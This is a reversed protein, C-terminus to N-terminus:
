TLVILKRILFFSFFLIQWIEFSIILGPELAVYKNLCFADFSEHNQVSTTIRDIAIWQKRKKVAEVFNYLENHAQNPNDHGALQTSLCADKQKSANNNAPKRIYETIYLMCSYQDKIEHQNHLLICDSLQGQSQRHIYFKYFIHLLFFRQLIPIYWRHYPQLCYHIEYNLQRPIAIDVM